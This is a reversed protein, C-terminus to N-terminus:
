CRGYRTPSPSGIASMLTGPLAYRSRGCTASHAFGRRTSSSRREPQLDRRPWDGLPPDFGMKPRHVRGHPVYLHRMHHLPWKGSGDRIELTAPVRWAYEVARHDLMPVRTDLSVAM